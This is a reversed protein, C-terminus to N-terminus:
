IKRVFVAMHLYFTVHAMQSIPPSTHLLHLGGVGYMVM